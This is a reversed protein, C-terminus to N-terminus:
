EPDIASMFCNFYFEAEGQAIEIANSTSNIRFLVTVPKMETEETVATNTNNELQTSSQTRFSKLM